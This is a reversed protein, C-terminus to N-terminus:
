RSFERALSKNAYQAHNHDLLFIAKNKVLSQMMNIHKNGSFCYVCAGEGCTMYKVPCEM